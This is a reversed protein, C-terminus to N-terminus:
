ALPSRAQSEGEEPNSGEGVAAMMRELEEVDFDYDIRRRKQLIFTQVM